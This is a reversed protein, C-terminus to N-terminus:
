ADIEPKLIEALVEVADDARDAIRTPCTHCRYYGTCDCGMDAADRCIGLVRELAERSVTITDGSEDSPPNESAM